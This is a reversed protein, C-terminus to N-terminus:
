WLASGVKPDRDRIVVRPLGHLVCVGQLYLNPAEVTTVSETCPLFHAMRLLHDVVILVSDFGNSAHLHPLYCLGVIHWPIPPLFLPYLTAAMHPQINARRCSVDRECFIKLMKAFEDGSSNTSRKALLVLSEEKVM